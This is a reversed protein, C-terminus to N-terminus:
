RANNTRLSSFLTQLSWNKELHKTCVLKVEHASRPFFCQTKKQQKLRNTRRRKSIITQESCM